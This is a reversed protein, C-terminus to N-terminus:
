TTVPTDAPATIQANAPLYSREGHKALAARVQDLDCTRVSDLLREHRRCGEFLDGASRAETRLNKSMCLQMQDMVTEYAQSLRTHRALAVLAIHFQRNTAILATEDAARAAQWMEAMTSDLEHLDGNRLTPVAVEIAFKELATRLTYIEDVDKASLEVVHYGHRPTQELIGQAALIRMAERLPPRSVGLRESLRAEYLREGPNLEGALILRRIEQGAMLVLSNQLLM